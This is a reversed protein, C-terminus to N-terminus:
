FPLLPPLLPGPRMSEEAARGGQFAGQAVGPTVLSAINGLQPARKGAAYAAEGVIRPSFAPLAAIGAGGSGLATGGAVFSRLGRPIWSDLSAGALAPTINDAGARQLDARYGARFGFKSNVDDRMTGMLKGLSTESMAKDGISLARELDRLHTSSEEYAKMVKAYGPAQEVISDRVANYVGNAMRRSPSHPETSEVVDYLSKKLADMGEVTHYEAPDLKDWEDLMSKLQGRTEVTSQSIDVGKFKGQQMVKWAESRVTDNYDIPTTAKDDGFANALGQRYGAMKEEHLTRLATRAEDVVEQMPMNGRLSRLFTKGQEGGAKGSQFAIRIPSAHAGTSLGLVQPLAQAAGDKSYKLAAITARGPDIKRGVDTAVKGVRQAVSAAQSAAPAMKGSVLAALRPTRAALAGGGTLLTGIDAAAGVPDGALTKKINEFGGYRDAFFGGVAEAHHEQGQRGPILKQLAGLGLGGLGKVTDIPSHIPATLDRLFRGASSPLNAMMDLPLTALSQGAQNMGGGAAARAEHAVQPPVGNIASAAAMPGAATNTDASPPVLGRNRAETLLAAKDAPLIGRREAELLLEIQSPM